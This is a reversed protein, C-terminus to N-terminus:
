VSIQRFGAPHVDADEEADEEAEEEWDEEDPYQAPAEGRSEVIRPYDGEAADPNIAHVRVQFHYEDGYDFLYLFKQGIQLELDDLTTERVDGASDPGWIDDILPGALLQLREFKAADDLAADRLIEQAQQEQEATLGLEVLEAFLDEVSAEEVAEEGVALEEDEEDDEGDLALGWPDAGEPLTYETSEDWARNSMYFSYMHDADWEYADQIAFHLEELTQDSRMEIKRWVRGGGRLTVHFTYTKM